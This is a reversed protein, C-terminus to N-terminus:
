HIWRSLSSLNNIIQLNVWILSFHFENFEQFFLIFFAIFVRKANGSSMRICIIDHSPVDTSINLAPRILPHKKLYAM